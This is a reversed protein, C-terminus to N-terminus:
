LLARAQNGCTAIIHEIGTKDNPDLDDRLDALRREEQEAATIRAPDPHPQSQEQAILAAQQSILAGICDLAVEYRLHHLQFLKERM